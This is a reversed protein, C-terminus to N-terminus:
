TILRSGLRAVDTGYNHRLRLSHVQLIAPGSAMDVFIVPGQPHSPRGLLGAAEDPNVDEAFGGPVLSGVRKGTDWSSGQSFGGYVSM